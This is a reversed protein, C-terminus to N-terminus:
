ATITTLLTNFADDGILQKLEDSQKAITKFTAEAKRSDTDFDYEEAWGEFGEANEFGEADSALCDLIDKLSPPVPQGISNRHGTGTSFIITMPKNAAEGHLEAVTDGPMLEHCSTSALASIECSWHDMELCDTM